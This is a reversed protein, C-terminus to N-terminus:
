RNAFHIDDVTKIHESLKQWFIDNYTEMDGPSPNGFFDQWDGFLKDYKVGTEVTYNVDDKTVNKKARSRVAKRKINKENRDHNASRKKKLAQKQNPQKAPPKKSTEQGYTYFNTKIKKRGAKEEVESLQNLSALVPAGERISRVRPKGSDDESSDEASPPHDDDNGLSYNQM